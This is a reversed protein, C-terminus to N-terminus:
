DSGPPPNPNAGPGGGKKVEGGELWELVWRGLVYVQGARKATRLRGLRAERSVTHSALGLALQLQGPRYVATPRIVPARALPALNGILKRPV